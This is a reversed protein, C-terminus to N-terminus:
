LDEKSFSGFIVQETPSALQIPPVELPEVKYSVQWAEITKIESEPRILKTIAGLLYSRSENRVNINNDDNFAQEVIDYSLSDYPISLIHEPKVIHLKGSTTYVRLETTFVLPKPPRFRDGYSSYLIWTIIPWTSERRGVIGIGLLFILLSIKTLRLALLSNSKSKHEPEVVLQEQLNM